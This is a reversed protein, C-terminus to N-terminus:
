LGARCLPTSIGGADTHRHVSTTVKITAATMM